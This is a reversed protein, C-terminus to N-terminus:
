RCFFNIKKAVTQTTGTCTPPVPCVPPPPPFNNQNLTIFNWNIEPKSWSNNIQTNYDGPPPCSQACGFGHLLHQINPGCDQGFQMHCPQPQPQPPRSWHPQQWANGWDSSGGGQWNTSSWGNGYIGNMQEGRYM